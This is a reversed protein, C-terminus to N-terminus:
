GKRKLLFIFNNKDRKTASGGNRKTSSRQEERRGKRNFGQYLNKKTQLEQHTTLEKDSTIFLESFTKTSEFNKNKEKDTFIMILDAKETHTRASGIVKEDNGKM